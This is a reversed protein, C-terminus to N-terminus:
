FISLFPKRRSSQAVSVPCPRARAAKIERCVVDNIEAVSAAAEVRDRFAPARREVCRDRLNTVADLEDQRNFPRTCWHNRIQQKISHLYLYRIYIGTLIGLLLIINYYEPDYNIYFPSGHLM